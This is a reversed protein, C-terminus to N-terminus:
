HPSLRATIFACRPTLKAGYGGKKLTKVKFPLSHSRVHESPISRFDDRNSRSIQLKVNGPKTKLTSSTTQFNELANQTRTIRKFTVM